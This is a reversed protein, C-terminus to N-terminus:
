RREELFDQLEVFYLNLYLVLLHRTRWARRRSLVRTIKADTSATGLHEAPSLFNEFAGQLASMCRNHMLVLTVIAPNPQPVSHSPAELLVLLCNVDDSCM